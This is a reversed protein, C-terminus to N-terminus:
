VLKSISKNYDSGIKEWRYRQATKIAHRTFDSANGELARKIKEALARPDKQPALFGNEGETVVDPMGGVRTAVVPKGSSLAELLVVPLGETEGRSDIISPIVVLDCTKYYQKICNKDQYGAFIVKEAIGLNRAEAKLPSELEGGGVIVLSVDTREEYVQNFARLLYTVGKKESLKGVYLIIKGEGIGLEERATEQDMGDDYFEAHIGMPLIQAQIETQVLDSLMRQNYSSVCYITETNKVIMRALQKGFPLRRLAFLGAAHITLIHKFGMSPKLWAASFGQPIMWHSNVVDIKFEKVAKYLARTQCLFFSPIQAASFKNKRLCSLMGTGNVLAQFNLPYFYPFRIIKLGDWEEYKKAEPTHPTLVYTNCYKTLEEALELVFRAAVPDSKWRPFTSTFILANKKM